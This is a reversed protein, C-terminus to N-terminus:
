PTPSQPLKKLPFRRFPSPPVGPGGNDPALGNTWVVPGGGVAAALEEGVSRVNEDDAMEAAGRWEEAVAKGDEAWGYALLSALAPADELREAWGVFQAWGLNSAVETVSGDERGVYVSM